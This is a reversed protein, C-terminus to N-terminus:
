RSIDGFTRLFGDDRISDTHFELGATFFRLLEPDGRHRSLM